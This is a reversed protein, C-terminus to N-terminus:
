AYRAKLSYGHCRCLLDNRNDQGATGAGPQPRQGTFEVRLLQQRQDALLGHQLLRHQAQVPQGAHPRRQHHAVIGMAEHDGFLQALDAPGGLRHDELREAAVGGRRHGHRSQLRGGVAVIRQQQHQGGIM